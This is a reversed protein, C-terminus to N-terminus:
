RHKQSNIMSGKVNQTMPRNLLSGGTHVKPDDAVTTRCCCSFCFLAPLVIAVLVLILYVWWQRSECCEGPNKAADLAPPDPLALLPYWRCTCDRGSHTWAGTRAKLTQWTSNTWASLELLLAPEKLSSSSQELLSVSTNSHPGVADSFAATLPAHGSTLRKHHMAGRRQRYGVRPSVRDAVVPYLSPLYMM